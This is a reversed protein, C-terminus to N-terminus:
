FFNIRELLGASCFSGSIQVSVKMGILVDLGGAQTYHTFIETRKLM